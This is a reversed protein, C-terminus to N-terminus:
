NGNKIRLYEGVLMAGKPLSNDKKNNSDIEQNVEKMKQNFTFTDITELDNSINLHKDILNVTNVIEKETGKVIEIENEIENETEIDTGKVKVKVIGKETEKVIDKEKHQNPNNQTLKDIKRANQNGNPAGGKAGNAKSAAIKREYRVKNFEQTPMLTGNFFIEAAKTMKVLEKEEDHLYM